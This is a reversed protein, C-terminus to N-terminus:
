YSALLGARILNRLEDLLAEIEQAGHDKINLLDFPDNGNLGLFIMKFILFLRRCLVEKSLHPLQERLVIYLHQVIDGANDHIQERAMDPYENGIRCVLRFIGLRRYNSRAALHKLPLILADLVKELGADEDMASLIQECHLMYPLFHHLFLAQTLGSKSGFHYSVAALNVDAAQTIDRLSTANVGKEIYLHEAANLIRERTHTQPFKEIM